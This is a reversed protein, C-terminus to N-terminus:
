IPVVPVYIAVIHKHEPHEKPDNLYLEYPLRDDPMYGSEPLWDSYLAGWAKHFEDSALEFEACAYKGSPIVMKGIEGEVETEEPVNMCITIRLKNDDTLSPNDHYLTRTNDIIVLENSTKKLCESKLINHLYDDSFRVVVFSIPKQPQNTSPPLQPHKRSSRKFFRWLKLTNPYSM